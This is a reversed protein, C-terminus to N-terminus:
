SRDGPLAYLTVDAFNKGSILTGDKVMAAVVKRLHKPTSWANCCDELGLIGKNGQRAIVDRIEMRLAVDAKSIARVGSM